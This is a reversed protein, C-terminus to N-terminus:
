CRHLQQRVTYLVLWAAKLRAWVEYYWVLLLYTCTLGSHVRCVSPYPPTALGSLGQGQKLCFELKKLGQRLRLNDWLGSAKNCYLVIYVTIILSPM